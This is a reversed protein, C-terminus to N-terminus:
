SSLETPFRANADPGEGPQCISRPYGASHARTVNRIRIGADATADVPEGTAADHHGELRRSSRWAPRPSSFRSAPVEPTGGERLAQAERCGPRAASRARSSERARVRRPTMTTSASRCCVIARARDPRAAFSRAASTSRRARTHRGGGRQIRASGARRGTSWPLLASAYHVPVVRPGRSSSTADGFVRPSTTSSPASAPGTSPNSPM